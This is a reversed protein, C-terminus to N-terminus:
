RQELWIVAVYLKAICIESLVNIWDRYPSLPPPNAIKRRM